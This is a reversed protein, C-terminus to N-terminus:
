VVTTIEGRIKTDSVFCQTCLYIEFKVGNVNDTLILKWNHNCTSQKVANENEKEQDM